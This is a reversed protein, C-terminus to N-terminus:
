ITMGFALGLGFDGMVEYQAISGLNLLQIALFAVFGLLGVIFLWHLRQLLRGKEDNSYDAVELVTERLEEDMHERTREGCLIERLDVAYFDSLEMLIDLDPMNSGTEWRSVTRRTVGMQEALQEQTLGKEKRLEQLVKGIKVIDM